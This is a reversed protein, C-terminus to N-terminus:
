RLDRKILSAVVIVLEMPEVPKAVHMQYGSALARLRDQSRAYATLAVAPIRSVEADELERLKRVLAYGDEEPMGIDSVIIDPKWENLLALADRSAAAVKVEARCQELVKTLLVRTDAEDDVVLVRVGELSPASDLVPAEARGGNSAFPGTSEGKRLAMLPLRVTFTAGQEDGSSEVQVTGGHLEVLHRVIALGLGLGGHARTSTADAQRFRDFVHPLFERLIGRGTDSVVIEAQSNIRGLTVRVSGGKPTFKIAKSLLNRFVQQLRGADGRVPGVDPVLASQLKVGRAEAAPRVSDLAAQIVHALEVPRVDLRLKGSIIRSVDLLDEILQSQVNANRVVIELAQESAEPDLKGDRLMRSWGLIANLPTRLEHSITALFEDKLRSAEEARSRAEQERRLLQEREQEIRKRETIDEQVCVWHKKGAIELASIRAFTTFITGDKKKNNFEGFWVGVDNLQEVVQKFIRANEEPAYANKITAHQGIMEGPDYGFMLEEAPNTYVLIGNEDTLNVGEVMHELVRSQMVLASEARKRETIDIQACICGTVNGSEDFLPAANSHVTMRTGDTRLIELEQGQVPKREAVARQMPLEEPLLERGDRFLKYPLLEAGPGCKSVNEGLPVGLMKALAANTTIVECRADYAVAIGVPAIDFLTELERARRELEQNLREIKFAAEKHDAIDICSGIYGVFNGEPGYRPIGRNIVWRYEGDFRRLRYEMEFERRADFSATYIELCRGADEPHLSDLWGNGLEQGMTRGTFNLWGQNFFDCLKDVGSMWVMVPANNALTKFRAEAEARRADARRRETVDRFVLVAGIVEGTPKKIPAGTDDVPRETGDKAVLLMHNGLGVAAGDRLVRTLPSETKQRTTENIIRFIEDLHKGAAEKQKWGTLSEAVENLFTVKGATDTTIVADGISALTTHFRETEALSQEESIEARLRARHLAEVLFSILYAVSLFLCFQLLKIPELLFFSTSPSVFFYWAALTSLWTAFIGAWLGGLWASAVVALFYLIFPVTKGLWKELLLRLLTALAVFLISVGYRQIPTIKARPM